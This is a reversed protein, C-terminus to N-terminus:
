GGAMSRQMDRVMKILDEGWGMDIEHKMRAHIAETVWENMSTGSSSVMAVLQRHMDAGLRLTVNRMEGAEAASETSGSGAKRAATSKESGM